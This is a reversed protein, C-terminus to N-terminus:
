RVLGLSGSDIPWFSYTRSSEKPVRQKKKDSEREERRREKQRQSENVIPAEKHMVVCAHYVAGWVYLVVRV